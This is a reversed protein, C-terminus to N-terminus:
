SAREHSFPLMVTAAREPEIVLVLRDRMPFPQGTYRMSIRDVIENARPGTFREVIRGRIWASRYPNRDDTVSLAVRGDRELNRAKRTGEGTFFAIKGDEVGVWVPVSHPSGDPLLSALHAFNRGRLLEEVELPLEM